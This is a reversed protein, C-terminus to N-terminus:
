GETYYLYFVISDIKNVHKLSILCHSISLYGLIIEEMPLEVVKIKIIIKNLMAQKSVDTHEQM